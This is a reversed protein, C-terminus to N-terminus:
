QSDPRMDQWLQTAARVQIGIYGRRGVPYLDIGLHEQELKGQEEKSGFGSAIQCRTREPLPFEGIAKAFEKLQDLDFYASSRSSYGEVAADASLKGTGDGDDEFKLRLFGHKM